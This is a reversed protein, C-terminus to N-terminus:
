FVNITKNSENKWYEINNLFLPCIRPFSLPLSPSVSVSLSLSLTVSLLHLYNPRKPLFFLSSTTSFIPSVSISPFRLLPQGFTFYISLLYLSTTPIFTILFSILARPTSLSTTLPPRIHLFKKPYIVGSAHPLLSSLSFSCVTNNHVIFEYEYRTESSIDQYFLNYWNIIQIEKKM